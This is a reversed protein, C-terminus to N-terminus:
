TSEPSDSTSEKKSEHPKSSSSLEFASREKTDSVVSDKEELSVVPIIEVTQNSSSPESKEDSINSTSEIAIESNRPHEVVDFSPTSDEPKKETQQVEVSTDVVAV